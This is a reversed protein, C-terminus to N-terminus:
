QTGVGGAPQGALDPLDFRPDAAAALLQNVALGLEKTSTGNNGFSTDATLAVVDGDDQFVAVSIAGPSTLVLAKTAGALTERTCAGDCFFQVGELSRGVAIELMGGGNWTLKTGLSEDGTQENTIPGSQLHTGAPDLDERLIDRYGDLAETHMSLQVIAGKGTQKRVQQHAQAEHRVADEAAARSQASAETDARGSPGGAFDPGAGSHGGGSLLVASTGIVAATTVAAGAAGLSRRRRRAKGRALDDEPTTVPLAVSEALRQLREDLEIM